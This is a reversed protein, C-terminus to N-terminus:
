SHKKTPTLAKKSKNDHPMISLFKHHGTGIKEIIVRINAGAKVEHVLEFHFGDKWIGKVKRKIKRINTKQSCEKVVIPAYTLCMLKLFQESPRRPKWHNEYLLHNFGESTFYITENLIPCFVSVISKYITKQEIILKKLNM